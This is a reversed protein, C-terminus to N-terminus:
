NNHYVKVSNDKLDFQTTTELGLLEPAKIGSGWKDNSTLVHIEDWYDQKICQNLINAGGEILVQDIHRSMLANTLVDFITDTSSAPEFVANAIDRNKGLVLTPEGDVFITHTTPLKGDLDLIVRLPNKGKVLRTTLSPNDAIATTTGVFIAASEARLQHVYINALDNSISKSHNTDNPDRGMFGDHTEAWELVIYPRHKSHFTMFRRNLIAGDEELIGTHVDIGSDRLRAIGQGAVKDHPDLNSIVVRPIKHKIILDACPPTKGHHSCPELNVYLTSESLLSKDKVAHIAEVEAHPNGYGTHYGEGIITDHHVIVSGVLPNPYTLPHGKRALEFCRKM